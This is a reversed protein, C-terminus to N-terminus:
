RAARRHRWLLFRPAWLLPFIIAALKLWGEAAVFWAVTVFATLLALRASEITRLAKM